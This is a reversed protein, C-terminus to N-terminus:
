EPSHDNYDIPDTATPDECGCDCKTAALGHKACAAEGHAGHNRCDPAWQVIRDGDVTCTCCYCDVRQAEM